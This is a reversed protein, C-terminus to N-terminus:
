PPTHSRSRVAQSVPARVPAGMSCSSAHLMGSFPRSPGRASRRSCPVDRAIGGRDPTRPTPPPPGGAGSACRAPLGSGSGSPATSRPARSGGERWAAEWRELDGPTTVPRWSVDGSVGALHDTGPRADLLIWEAAILVDFGLPALDLRAFADKVTFPRELDAALDAIAALQEGVTGPAVTLANSYYPPVEARTLWVGRDVSGAVGHAALVATCWDLNNAVCRGTGTVARRDV